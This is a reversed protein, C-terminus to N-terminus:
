PVSFIGAAKPMATHAGADIRESDALRTVTIPGGAPDTLPEWTGDLVLLGMRKVTGTHEITKGRTTELWRHPVTDGDRWRQSPYTADWRKVFLQHGWVAFLTLLQSPLPATHPAM